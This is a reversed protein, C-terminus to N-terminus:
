FYIYLVSALNILAKPDFHKREKPTKSKEVGTEFIVHTVHVKLTLKWNVIKPPRTAVTRVLLLM